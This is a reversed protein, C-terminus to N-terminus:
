VLLFALGTTLAFYIAITMIDVITSQVPGSFIAGDINFKKALMPLTTGVMNAIIITIYFSISAILAIYMMGAIHSSIDPDSFQGMIGWVVLIRIFGTFFCALGVLNATFFEKKIAKRYTGPVVENLAIARVLTSSSQNGTNGATGNISTSMAIATSITLPALEFILGENAAGMFGNYSWLIQFGTIIIQTVSGVILLIIIWPIRSRFQEFSTTDFYTKETVKVAGHAFAQDAVDEFWEIIDEAEIVGVLRKTTNVVPIESLGYKSIAAEAEALTVSTTVPTVKKIFKSIKTTNENAIIDGPTIYGVYKGNDADYVFVNGVIELDDSNIQKKIEDKVQRVTLGTPVAVYDVVMHYGIHNEDYRLIANIKSRTEADSAKLVKRVMNAPLEDLIDVAEDTYLEEFIESIEESSLANIVNEQQDPNLEAFLNAADEEKLLRILLVAKEVPWDKIEEYIDSPHFEDFILRVKKINREDVFKSLGKILVKQEKM